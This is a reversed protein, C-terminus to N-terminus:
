YLTLARELTTELLAAVRAPDHRELARARAERALRERGPRDRLAEVVREAFARPSGRGPVLFADRGDELGPAGSEVCVAPVGAVQYALLKMPFGGALSRPLLALDAHPPREAPSAATILRVGPNWRRSEAVAHELWGLNQYPDRNGEYYLTLGDGPTVRGEGPDAPPPLADVDGQSTSRASLVVTRSTLRRALGDLGCGVWRKLRPLRGYLALEEGLDSHRVYISPVRLRSATLGALVGGDGNHGVVIDAHQRLASGLILADDLLRGLEPRSSVPGCRSRWGARTLPLPDRRGPERLRPVLTRVEHGRQLLGLVTREVLLQSGRGAPFPCPAIVLVKM